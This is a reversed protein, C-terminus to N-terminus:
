DGMPEMVPRHMSKALSTDLLDNDYETKVAYREQGGYEKKAERDCFLVM